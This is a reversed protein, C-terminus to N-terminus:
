HGARALALAGVVECGRARLVEVCAALTSGTTVVDDVLVVRGRPLPGAIRFAGRVNGARDTRGLRAQQETARARELLRPVFRVGSSRAVAAALLAAQDYGREVLRRPHLPVPVCLDSRALAFSACAPALLAGLRPALESRGEFKYRTIATSLPPEYAGAVAVPVGSVDSSPVARPHGCAACFTAGNPAAGCAACELPALLDLLPAFM